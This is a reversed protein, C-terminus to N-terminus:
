RKNREEIWAFVDERRWAVVNHSLRVAKPFAGKKKKALRRLQWRSFPIGLKKLDDRSLLLKGDMGVVIAASAGNGFWFLAGFNLNPQRTPV